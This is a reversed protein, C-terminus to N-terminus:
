RAASVPIFDPRADVDEFYLCAEHCGAVHPVGGPTVIFSGPEYHREPEGQLGYLYTGSVVVVRVTATHKHLPLKANAPMKVFRAQPGDASGWVRAFMMGPLLPVPKWDLAAPPVAM